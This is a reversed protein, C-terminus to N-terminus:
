FEFSYKLECGITKKNEELILDLIPYALIKHRIFCVIKLVLISSKIFYNIYILLDLRSSIITFIIINQIVTIKM